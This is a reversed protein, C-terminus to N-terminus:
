WDINMQWVLGLPLSVFRQHLNNVDVDQITWPGGSRRELGAQIARWGWGDHIDKMPQSPDEFATYGSATSPPVRGPADDDGRWQQLQQYKGPQMLLHRIIKKLPVYPLIKTPTRKITGDSLRKSTFLIGSCAPESCVADALQTLESPHHPQWCIDCLFYYTIFNETFIGLRKEATTLTRAMKELGPFDAEPSQAKASRLALAIGELHMQVAQHTSGKISSLLFARIYANRIAPHENFAQPLDDDSDSPEDDDEDDPEGFMLGRRRFLPNDLLDEEIEDQQIQPANENDSDSFDPELENLQSTNELGAGRDSDSMSYRDRGDNDEGDHDGDLGDYNGYGDDDDDCDDDRDDFLDDLDAGQLGVLAGHDNEDHEQHM